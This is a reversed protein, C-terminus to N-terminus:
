PALSIAPPCHVSGSGPNTSEEPQWAITFTRLEGWTGKKNLLGSNFSGIVVTAQCREARLGSVKELCAEIIGTRLSLSVPRAPSSLSIFISNNNLSSFRHSFCEPYYVYRPTTIKILKTERLQNSLFHFLITCCIGGERWLCANNLSPLM